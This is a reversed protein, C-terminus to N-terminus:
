VSIEYQKSKGNAQDKKTSTQTLLPRKPYDFAFSKLPHAQRYSETRLTIASTTSSTEAQLDANMRAHNKTAMQYDDASVRQRQGHADFIYAENEDLNDYSYRSSLSMNSSSRNLTAKAKPQNKMALIPSSSSSSSGVLLRLRLDHEAIQRGAPLAQDDRWVAHDAETAVGSIKCVVNPCAAMATIGEAWPTITDARIGPKGIHNLIFTVEPCAKVLAVADAVVGKVYSAYSPPARNWFCSTRSCSTTRRSRRVTPRRSRACSRASSSRRRFSRPCPKCAASTRCACCWARRSM